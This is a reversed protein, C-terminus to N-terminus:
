FKADFVADLLLMEHDSIAVGNGDLAPVVKAGTPTLGRVLLWDLKRFPGIPKGSPGTRQTVAPLNSSLWGFGERRLDAFLPEFQEAEALARDQDAEGAPLAKTNLDGGIICAEGAAFSDLGRLLAQMERQRDRATTKSELHVSVVWLPFPSDVLRAALAMRGGIRRQAGGQGPFWFGSEELPILHPRELRLRSVIANGHFGLANVEGAHQRMEVADGLDLEVFEAGFLYGEGTEATLDRLTHANGSRAMGLDVESLLAIQAGSQDLLARLSAGDKLREANFAAIRLAAPFPAITRVAAAEILNLAPLDGCYRSHADASSDTRAQELIAQPVPLLDPVTERVIARM